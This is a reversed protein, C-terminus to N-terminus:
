SYSQKQQIRKLLSFAALRSKSAASNNKEVTASCQDVSSGMSMQDRESCQSLTNAFIGGTPSSHLLDNVSVTSAQSRAIHHSSNSSANSSNSSEPSTNNPQRYGVRISYLYKLIRYTAFFHNGEALLSDEYVIAQMQQVSSVGEVQYTQMMYEMIATDREIASQPDMAEIEDDGKIYLGGYGLRESLRSLFTCKEILQTTSPRNGPVGDLLVKLVAVCERPVLRLNESSVDFAGNIWSRSSSPFKGVLLCYFVIGLSWMDAKMPDYAQHVLTEPAMYQPTGSQQEIQEHDTAMGFDTLLVRGGNSILINSLKIDRHAIGREHCTHVASLIQFFVECAHQPTVSRHANLYERLNGGLALEEIIYCSNDTEFRDFVRAINPHALGEMVKYEDLSQQLIQPYDKFSDSRKVIIKLACELGTIRHRVKKIRSFGGAAIHGCFDYLELVPHSM